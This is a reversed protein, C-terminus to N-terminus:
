LAMYLPIKIPVHGDVSYASTYKQKSILDGLSGLLRKLIYDIMLTQCNQLLILLVLVKIFM